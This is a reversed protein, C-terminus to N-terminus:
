GSLLTIFICTSTPINSHAEALLEIEGESLVLLLQHWHIFFAMWIWSLSSSYTSSVLIAFSTIIIRANGTQFVHVDLGLHLELNGKCGLCFMPFPLSGHGRPMGIVTLAIMETSDSHHNRLLQILVIYLQIPGRQKDCRAWLSHMGETLDLKVKTQNTAGSTEELRCGLKNVVEERM